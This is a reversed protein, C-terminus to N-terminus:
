RSVGGSILHQSGRKSIIRLNDNNPSDLCAAEYGNRTANSDLVMIRSRHKQIRWGDCTLDNTVSITNNLQDNSLIQPSFATNQAWIEEAVECCLHM